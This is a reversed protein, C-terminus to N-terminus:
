FICEQPIPLSQLLIRPSISSSPHSTLFPAPLLLPLLICLHSSSPLFSIFFSVSSVSLPHTTFSPHLTSQHLFQLIHLLICLHSSSSPFCSSFTASIVPSSCSTVLSSQLTSQDWEGEECPLGPEPTVPVPM